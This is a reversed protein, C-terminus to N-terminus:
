VRSFLDILFGLGLRETIAVFGESLTSAPKGHYLPKNSHKITFVAEGIHPIAGEYEGVTVTGDGRIEIYVGDVGGKYFLEREIPKVGCKFWEPHGAYLRSNEGTIYDRRWKRESFKTEKIWADFENRTM